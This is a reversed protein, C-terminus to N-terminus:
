KNTISTHKGYSGYEGYRGYEETKTNVKNLVVGLFVPNAQKMQEVAKEVYRRKIEGNETVLLSADAQKAIISADIVSGIPATDIIVYDYHNAAYDMLQSFAKNQLLSTPNPAMKGSPLVDLNSVNTTAVAEELSSNGSLYATLGTVREKAKFTGSLVSNRIDADILLSKYGLRAFSIALNTATTSKGEGPRTSTVVIRKFDAGSFQINTRIANIYEEVRRYALAKERVLELEPM